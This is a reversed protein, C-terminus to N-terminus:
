SMTMNTQTQMELEKHKQYLESTAVDGPQAIMITKDSDEFQPLYRSYDNISYSSFALLIITGDATAFTYAKIKTNSGEEGACDGSRQEAKLGNVTVFSTPLEQCQDGEQMALPNGGQM